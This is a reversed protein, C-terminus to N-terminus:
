LPPSLAGLRSLTAHQRSQHHTFEVDPSTEKEDGGTGTGRRGAPFPSLRLRTPSPVTSSAPCPFVTENERSNDGSVDQDSTLAPCFCVPCAAWRLPLPRGRPRAQDRESPRGWPRCSLEGCVPAFSFRTDRGAHLCTAKSFGMTEARRQGKLRWFFYLDVLAAPRM